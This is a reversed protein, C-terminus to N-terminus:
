PWVEELLKLNWGLQLGILISLVATDVVHSYLTKDFQELHEILMIEALVTPHALAKQVFQQATGRLPSLPIVQGTKVGEFVDELAAIADGRLRRLKKQNEWELNNRDF